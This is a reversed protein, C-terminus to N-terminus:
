GAQKVVHLIRDVGQLDKLIRYSFATSRELYEELATRYLPNIEFIAEGGAKLNTKM